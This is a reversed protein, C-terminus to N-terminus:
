MRGQKSYQKSIKEICVGIFLGELCVCLFLETEKEFVYICVRVRLSMLKSMARSIQWGAHDLHLDDISRVKRIQYGCLIQRHRFWNNKWIWQIGIAQSQIHAAKVWVECNEAHVFLLIVMSLKRIILWEAQAVWSFKKETETSIQCTLRSGYVSSLGKSWTVSFFCHTPIVSRRATM